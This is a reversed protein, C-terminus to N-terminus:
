TCVYKNDEVHRHKGAGTGEATELDPAVNDEKDESSKGSDDDELEPEEVIIAM